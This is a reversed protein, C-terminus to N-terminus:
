YEETHVSENTTELLLGPLCLHLLPYWSSSLLLLLFLSLLLLFVSQGSFQLLHLPLLFSILSVSLLNSFVPIAVSTCLVAAHWGSLKIIELNTIYLSNRLTYWLHTSPQFVMYKVCDPAVHVPPWTSLQSCSCLSLQVVLLSLLLSFSLPPVQVRYM